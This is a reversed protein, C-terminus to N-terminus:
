ASVTSVGIQEGEPVLQRIECRNRGTDKAHALAAAALEVLGEHTAAVGAEAVAFGVSVTIHIKQGNYEIPTNAVTARIREALTATGEMNAERAVVLFEEGGVRGVSDVERLSGTLTRALAKLVEDGGTLLHTTNINKFHDIDVYGLALSSPYRAHRKLEFRVLEDIARRNFLGTLPDTLALRELERTRQQLLLNAEELERTREAVRRELERNLTQLENLLEERRRELNFKDAANRFIQLLDDLRWPKLLYYYVHGRNIAEIADELETFGTMLLRITSPHNQAVWELLQAGSMGPMRQDTLVIDVPRQALIARAALAHPATVVDFHPLLQRHLTHLVAPEDDVVLVSCKRPGRALFADRLGAAFRQAQQRPESLAQRLTRQQETWEGALAKCTACEGLHLDLLEAERERIENDLRASLLIRYQECDASETPPIAERLALRARALRATVAPVSLDLFHALERYSSPQYLHPFLVLRSEGPVRELRRSASGSEGSPNGGAAPGNPLSCRALVLDALWPAFRQPDPLAALNDFATLLVSRVLEETTAEPPHGLRAHCLALLRVAWREILRAYADTRGALSQRVLDLDDM